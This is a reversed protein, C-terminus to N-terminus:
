CLMWGQPCGIDGPPLIHWDGSFIPCVGTKPMQGTLKNKKAAAAAPIDTEAAPGVTVAATARKGKLMRVLAVATGVLIAALLIWDLASM